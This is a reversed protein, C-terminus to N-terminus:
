NRALVEDQAFRAAIEDSRRDDEQVDQLDLQKEVRRAAELAGLLQKMRERDTM